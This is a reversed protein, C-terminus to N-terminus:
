TELCRQAKSCRKTHRNTTIITQNQKLFEQERPSLKVTSGGGKGCGTLVLCALLVLGVIIRFRM